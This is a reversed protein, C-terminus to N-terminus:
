YREEFNKKTLVARQNSLATKLKHVRYQQITQFYKHRNSHTADVNIVLDGHMIDDIMDEEVELFMNKALDVLDPDQQEQIFYLRALKHEHNILAMSEPELAM